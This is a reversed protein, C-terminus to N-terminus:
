GICMELVIERDKFVDLRIIYFVGKKQGLFVQRRIEVWNEGGEIFM